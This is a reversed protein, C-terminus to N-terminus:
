SERNVGHFWHQSTDYGELLGAHIMGDTDCSMQEFILMYMQWSKYM